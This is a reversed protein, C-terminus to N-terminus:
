DKRLNIITLILFFVSVSSFYILDRTDIVGRSITDFHSKMGLTNIEFSSIQMFYSVIEFGYFVLFCIIVSSIFTVMQSKSITSAFIGISAFALILFFLGIYSGIMNGIDWISSNELLNSITIHYLITPTLALCILSVAGLYKGLVIDKLSIPKTALLEFTGINKEESFAKMTIAPIMILFVWPTVIFFSSLDALGNDFINFEGPIFWLILNNVILFLAIVLFGVPTSFFSNIERKLIAFM